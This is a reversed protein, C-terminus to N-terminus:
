HDALYATTHILAASRTPLPRSRTPQGSGAITAVKASSSHITLACCSFALMCFPHLLDDARTLTYLDPALHRTKHWFGTYRRRSRARWIRTKAAGLTLHRRQRACCYTPSGFPRVSSLLLTALGAQVTPWLHSRSKASNYARRRECWVRRWYVLVVSM